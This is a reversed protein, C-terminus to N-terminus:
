RTEGTLRALDRRAADDQKAVAPEAHTRLAQYRRYLRIARDREGALAALRAEERTMVHFLFLGTPSFRQRGIARLASARDGNQEYLRSTLINGVNLLYADAAPGTREFSDLAALRSAADSSKTIHARLAAVMLACLRLSEDDKRANAMEQLLQLSRDSTSTDGHWLDWQSLLCAAAAASRKDASTLARRLDPLMREATAVDGDGYLADAIAVAQFRAKQEPDAVLKDIAAASRSPMGLVLYVMQAGRWASRREEATTARATWQELARLSEDIGLGYVLPSLSTVYLTSFAATDLGSRLTRLAASDGLTIARAGSQYTFASSTDRAVRIADLRRVAEKDGAMIAWDIQHLLAGSNASDLALSRRFAKMALSDNEPVEALKGYHILLDGYIFWADARDPAKAIVAEWAAVKQKITRHDVVSDGVLAYAVARDIGNLREM